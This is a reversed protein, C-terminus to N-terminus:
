GCRVSNQLFNISLHYRLVLCNWVDGIGVRCIAVSASATLYAVLFIIGYFWKTKWFKQICFSVQCMSDGQFIRLFQSLLWLYRTNATYVISVFYFGSYIFFATEQSTACRLDQSIFLRKPPVYRRWRWHRFILSRPVLTLLYCYVSSDTWKVPDVRCWMGSSRM